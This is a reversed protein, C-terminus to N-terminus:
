SGVVRDYAALMEGIEFRGPLGAAPAPSALAAQVAEVFGPYDDPDVLRVGADELEPLGGVRTAVIPVGLALAEMAVNPIGETRSPIVVVDALGYLTAIPDVLPEWVITGEAAAREVDHREPGDGAVVVTTGPLDTGLSVAWAPRKEESLRGIFAVVRRGPAIGLRRRLAAVEDPSSVAPPEIGTLLVEVSEPPRGDSRLRDALGQYAALTLDLHHRAARNAELHGVENFLQDVIRLKPFRERLRPLVRYLWGSGVKLIVPDDLAAILGILQGLWGDESGLSPLRYVFPTIELLHPTRDIMGAALPETTVVVVTRGQEVWHRVLQEVQGDAGGHTFWPLVVLVPRGTGKPIMRPLAEVDVPPTEAPPRPAAYGAALRPHLAAIREVLDRHQARAQADRSAAASHSHVYTFLPEPIAKGRFGLEAAHAWLEWDEYGGAMDSSFGGTEAFVEWRFVSCVPLHNAELILFPDLDSTEWRGAEDGVVDVWPYAIGVDPNALLLVAAKELYTPHLRDDPDLCCIFKGQAAGIAANRAAVVGRNPGHFVSVGDLEAAEDLAALTEPDDSGDDWVVIEVGQLTQGHVSAIAGLLDRGKNYVPIIVSLLAPRRGGLNRLDAVVPPVSEAPRGSRRVRGAVRDKATWARTVLKWARSDYIEQLERRVRAADALQSEALALRASLRGVEVRAESAAIRERDELAQRRAANLARLAVRVLPPLEPASTPSQLAEAVRDAEVEVRRVLEAALARREDGRDQESQAQDWADSIAAPDRLMDRDLRVASSFLDGASALKPDDTPFPVTPMGAALGWLAAHFRNTIVASCDGLRRVKHQWPADGAVAEAGPLAELPALVGDDFPEFPILLPKLHRSSLFEGVARVIAEHEEIGPFSRLVVAVPGGDAPRTPLSEYALALDASVPWDLGAAERSIRDRFSGYAVYEYAQRAFAKAEPNRIPGFGNAWAVVPIRRATAELILDAWFLIPSTAEKWTDPDWGGLDQMLGGGPLVVAEVGDWKGEDPDLVFRGLHGDWM